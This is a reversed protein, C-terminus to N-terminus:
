EFLSEQIGDDSNSQELLVRFEDEDLVKVGLKQAKELKSGAGPGAIVYDTKKSVSSTVSAGLTRLKEGAEQRTMSELTGTLVFTKGKLVQKTEDVIDDESGFNVGAERLAEIEKLNAKRSFFDHLSAAIVPGVEDINVLTDPNSAADMLRDLTGFQRALVRAVGAGVHRIGLAFLVRALPREKSKKINDILKQASKEKFGPLQVVQEFQLTYLDSPRSVLEKGEFLTGAEEPPNMLLDITRPGLGEIDMAGRSIFHTLRGKRMAPCAVNVCRRVVEDEPKVLEEGCEPCHAPPSYEGPEEGEALSIVKPIVDGAKEIIVRRQPGLKLREIEEENHLTARRITSGALFVPELEGVPTIAGTRGVQHTIQYLLTEAQRAKFKYAIAWRPTKATAGLQDHAALDNVKIVIGDMDYPIEDRERELKDWFRQIGEVDTVFEWPQVVPFQMEELARMRDAHTPPAWDADTILEYVWIRINREAVKSSDLLKMSGATANRPNAFVQQGEEQRKENLKDFDARNMYVEGRVEFSQGVGPGKRVELPYGRVTKLNVTINDGETGDGRTAGLVMIGNEYHLTVAIGDVKPEVTYEVSDVELGERVRREFERVEDLNYTNALSMMPRAHRYTEFQDSIRGGVRNSPSSPGVWDPHAAELDLLERYLKDYQQDGIEPQNKVYYLYDHREIASVLDDYRKKDNNNSM